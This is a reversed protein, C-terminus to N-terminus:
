ENAQCSQPCYPTINHIMMLSTCLNIPWQRIGKFGQILKFYKQKLDRFIISKSPQSSGEYRGPSKVVLGFGDNKEKDLIDCVIHAVLLKVLKLNTALARLNKNNAACQCFNAVTSLQGRILSQDNIALLHRDNVHPTTIM